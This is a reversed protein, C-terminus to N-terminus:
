TVKGGLVEGRILVVTSGPDTLLTAHQRADHEYKFTAISTGGEPSVQIVIWAWESPPM